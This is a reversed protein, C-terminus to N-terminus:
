KTVGCANWADTVTTVEQSGTGYLDGAAKITASRAGSWDTRPTM